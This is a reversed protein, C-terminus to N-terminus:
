KTWLSKKIINVIEEQNDEKTKTMMRAWVWIKFINWKPKNYKYIKGWVWYEVYYAYPTNNYIKWSIINWNISASKKQYSWVLKKTDEPTKEIIKEKLFELWNNIWSIFNIKIKDLEKNFEQEFM